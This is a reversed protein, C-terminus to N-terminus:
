HSFYRRTKSRAVQTPEAIQSFGKASGTFFFGGRSWKRAAKKSRLGNCAFLNLRNSM